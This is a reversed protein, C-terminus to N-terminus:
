RNLLKEITEILINKSLPKTLYADAGAKLANNEQVSYAHSTICIVPLAGFSNNSKLEKIIELGDKSGLLGIDMLILNYNEDSLKNYMAMGSDCFSLNYGQLMKEFIKQSVEEDEVILLNYKKEIDM